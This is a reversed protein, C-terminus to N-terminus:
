LANQIPVYVNYDDGCAEIAADAMAAVEQYRGSAFLSRGLIYYGGECDRKRDVARQACAISEDYRKDVFHIWAQAVQAEPLEPQLAAARQAAAQARETWTAGREFHYHYQACVNAIAAYALAFDPDLTVAGEFMQLAFELDQRTVRR